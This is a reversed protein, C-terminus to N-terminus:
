RARGDVRETAATAATAAAVRLLLSAVALQALREAVGVQALLVAERRARRAAARSCGRGHALERLEVGM